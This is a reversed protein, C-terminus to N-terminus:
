EKKCLELLNIDDQMFGIMFISQRVKELDSIFNAEYQHQKISKSVVAHKRDVLLAITFLKEKTLRRSLIYYIHRAHAIRKKRSQSILKSQELKFYECVKQLILEITINEM